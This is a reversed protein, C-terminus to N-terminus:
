PSKPLSPLPGKFESDVEVRVKKKRPNRLITKQEHQQAQTHLHVGQRCCDVELLVIWLCCAWDTEPRQAVPGLLVRRDRARGPRSPYSGALPDHGICIRGGAGSLPRHITPFAVEPAMLIGDRRKSYQRMVGVSSIPDELPRPGGQAAGNRKKDGSEPGWPRRHAIPRVNALHSGIHM